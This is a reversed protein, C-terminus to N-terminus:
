PQFRTLALAADAPVPAILSHRVATRERFRFCAEASWVSARAGFSGSKASRKSLTFSAEAKGYNARIKFRVSIRLFTSLGALGPSLTSEDQRQPTRGDEPRLFAREGSAEAWGRGDVISHQQSGLVTGPVTVRSPRV